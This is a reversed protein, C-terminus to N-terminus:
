CVKSIDDLMPKTWDSMRISKDMQWGFFHEMTHALSPVQGPEALFMAVVRQIDLLGNTQPPYKSPFTQLLNAMAIRDVDDFTMKTIYKNRMIKDLWAIHAWEQRDRFVTRVHIVVVHISLGGSSEFGNIKGAITIVEPMNPQQGDGKRISSNNLECDIALLHCGEFYVWVSRLQHIDEPTIITVKHASPHSHKGLLYKVTLKRSHDITDISISKSQWNFNMMDYEPSNYM